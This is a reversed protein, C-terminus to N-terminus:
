RRRFNSIQDSRPKQLKGNRYRYVFMKRELKSRSRERLKELYGTIRELFVSSTNSAFKKAKKRGKKRSVETSASECRRILPNPFKTSFGRRSVRLRNDVKHLKNNIVLFTKRRRELSLAADPGIKPMNTFGDTVRRPYGADFSRRRTDYRYYYGQGAKRFFFYVKNPARYLSVAANIEKVKRPFRVKLPGADSHISHPGSYLRVMSTYLAYKTGSFLIQYRTKKNGLTITVAATIPSKLGSYKLYKNFDVRTHVLRGKDSVTYLLNGHTLIGSYRSYRPVEWLASISGSPCKEMRRTPRSLRFRRTRRSVILKASTPPTKIPTETTSTVTEHFRTTPVATTTTTTSVPHRKIFRNVYSRRICTACCNEKMYSRHATSDCYGFKSWWKCLRSVKDKCGADQDMKLIMNMASNERDKQPYLKKAAQVDGESVNFVASSHHFSYWPYMLSRMTNSHALGIAHGIEHTAVWLLNIGRDSTNTFFEDDDFHIDGGHLQENKGHPYFAHGFSGGEGDFTKGDHHDLTLFRIWIDPGPNTTEEFVLPTVHSWISFAKRLISRVQDRHMDWTQARSDYRWTVKNKTWRTNTSVIGKASVGWRGNSLPILDSQGCRPKRMIHLTPEDVVGTTETGVFQQFVKIAASLQTPTLESQPYSTQSLYGYKWLYKIAERKLSKSDLNENDTTAETFSNAAFALLMLLISGDMNVEKDRLSSKRPLDYFVIM